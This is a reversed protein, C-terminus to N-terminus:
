RAAARRFGAYDAKIRAEWAPDLPGNHAPVVYAPTRQFVTLAAGAAGAATIVQVGSSGTGIVGVRQGRFDPPWM